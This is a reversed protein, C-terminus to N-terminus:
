GFIKRYALRLALFAFAVAAAVSNIPALLQAVLVDGADIEVLTQPLLQILVSVAGTLPGSLLWTGALLVVAVAAWGTLARRRSRDIRAMVGAGFQEGSLEERAADFLAELRPDREDTM